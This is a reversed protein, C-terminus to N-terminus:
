RTRRWYLALWALPALGLLVIALRIVIVQTDHSLFDMGSETNLVVVAYVTTVISVIAAAFARETLVGIRPKRRALTVLIVTATWDVLPLILLLPVLADSV